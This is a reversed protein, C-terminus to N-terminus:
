RVKRGKADYLAREDAALAALESKSLRHESWVVDALRQTNWCAICLPGVHPYHPLDHPVTLACAACTSM